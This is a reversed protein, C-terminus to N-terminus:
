PSASAAASGNNPAVNTNAENRTNRRSVRSRFNSAFEGTPNGDLAERAVKAAESRAGTADLAQVWLLQAFERSRGRKSALVYRELHEVAAAYNRTQVLANGLLLSAELLENDPPSLSIFQTLASAAAAFEQRRMAQKGQEFAVVRIEKKMQEAKDLLMERVLVPLKDAELKSLVEIGKLREDGQLTSMIRFADTAQRLATERQQREEKMEQMQLNAETAVKEAKALEANASSTRLGSITFAGLGCLLAFLVYAAASSVWMKRRVDVQQKGLLKLEAHLNKLLSDTKIVLNRSEIVERKIEEFAKGYDPQSM